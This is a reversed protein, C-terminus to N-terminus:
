RRTEEITRPAAPSAAAPKLRYIVVDQSADNAAPYRRRAAALARDRANDDVKYKRHLKRHQAAQSANGLQQYMIALNYHATVNEPDLQLTKEFTDAAQQLRRTREGTEGAQQSLFFQTLGLENNVMYDKSFDFRRRWMEATRMELVSRLDREAEPLHGQQRNVLGSLWAM